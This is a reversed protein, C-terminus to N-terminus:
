WCDLPSKLNTETITLATCGTDDAQVGGNNATATLTYSSADAVVSITYFGEASASGGLNDIDDTYKFNVAYWRQQGAAATNLAILGDTRRTELMYQTYAPYAIGSLIGIIGIVIMLEALNFGKQKKAQKM